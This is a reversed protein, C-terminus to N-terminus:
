PQSNTTTTSKETTETETSTSAAEVVSETTVESPPFEVMPQESIIAEVKADFRTLWRADAETLEEGVIKRERLDQAREQDRRERERKKEQEFFETSTSIETLAETISLLETESESYSKGPDIAIKDALTSLTEGQ